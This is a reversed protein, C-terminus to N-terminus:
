KTLMDVSFFYKISHSRSSCCTHFFVNKIISMFSCTNYIVLCLCLFHHCVFFDFSVFIFLLNMNLMIFICKIGLIFLWVHSTDCSFSGTLFIIGLSDHNALKLTWSIIFWFPVTHDKFFIELSSCVSISPPIKLFKAYCGTLSAVQSNSNSWGLQM